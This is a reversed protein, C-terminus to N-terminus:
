GEAIVSDDRKCSVYILTIMVLLATPSLPRVQSLLSAGAHLLRQVCSLKEGAKTQLGVDPLVSTALAKVTVSHSIAACHLPTMGPLLSQLLDAPTFHGIVSHGESM